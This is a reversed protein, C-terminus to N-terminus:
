TQGCTLENLRGPVETGRETGAEGGVLEPAGKSWQTDLGGTDGSTNAQVFEYEPGTLASPETQDASSLM